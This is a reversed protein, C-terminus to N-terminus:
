IGILYLNKTSCYYVKSADHYGGNSDYGQYRVKIWDKTENIEEVSLYGNGFADRSIFINSIEDLGNCLYVGNAGDKLPADAGEIRNFTVTKVKDTVYKCMIYAYDQSVCTYQIKYWTGDTAIVDFKEGVYVNGCFSKNDDTITHIAANPTIGYVTKNITTWKSLETGYTFTKSGKKGCSCSYYYIATGSSTEKSKLYQDSITKQDFVHSTPTGYSFAKSSTKGCECSYYYMSASSCTAASKLYNEEAKEQNYNHTHETSTEKSDDQTYEFPNKEDCSVVSFAVMLLGLLVALVRKM